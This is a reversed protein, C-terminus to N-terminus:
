MIGSYRATINTHVNAVRLKFYLGITASIGIFIALVIGLRKKRRPNM